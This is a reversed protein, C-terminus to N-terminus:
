PRLRLALSDLVSMRGACLEGCLVVRDMAPVAGNSPARYRLGCYDCRMRSRPAVEGVEDDFLGDVGEPAWRM